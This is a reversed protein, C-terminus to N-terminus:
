ASVARGPVEYTINLVGEARVVQADVNKDHTRAERLWSNYPSLNNFSDESDYPNVHGGQGLALDIDLDEVTTASSAIDLKVTLWLWKM